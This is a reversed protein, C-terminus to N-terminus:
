SFVLSLFDEDDLFRAAAESNYLPNTWGAGLMTKCYNSLLLVLREEAYGIREGRVLQVISDRHKTQATSPPDLTDIFGYTARIYVWKRALAAKSEEPPNFHEVGDIDVRGVDLNKTPWLVLPLNSRRSNARRTAVDWGFVDNEAEGPSRGNVKSRPLVHEISWIGQKLIEDIDMRTYPSDYQGASFRDNEARNVTEYFMRKGRASVSGWAQFRPRRPGCAQLWKLWINYYAADDYGDEEDMCGIAHQLASLNLLPLSSM